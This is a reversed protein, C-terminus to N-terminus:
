LKRNVPVSCIIPGIVQKDKLKILQDEEFQYTAIAIYWHNTCKTSIMNNFCIIMHNGGNGHFRRM